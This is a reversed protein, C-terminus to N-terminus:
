KARSLRRQLILRDNNPFPPQSLDYDFFGGFMLGTLLDGSSLSSAPHGSGASDTSVLIYYRVLKAPQELYGTTERNMAGGRGPIAKKKYLDGV